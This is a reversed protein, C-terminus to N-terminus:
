IENEPSKEQNYFVMYRDDSLKDNNDVGFCSYDYEDKGNVNMCVEFDQDILIFKNIKDRMGRSIEM